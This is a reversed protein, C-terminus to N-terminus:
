GNRLRSEGRINSIKKKEPNQPAPAKFIYNLHLMYGLIKVSTPDLISMNKPSWKFFLYYKAFM